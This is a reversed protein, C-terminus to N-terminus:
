YVDVYRSCLDAPELDEVLALEFRKTALYAELLEPSFWSGVVSDAEIASLAEGLTGPLAKVGYAAREEEGLSEPDQDLVPPPDLERKIGDLGALVLVALVLYPSATADAARYELNFHESKAPEPLPPLRLAAERNQKGVISYGASWNHPGLRLYSVPSPATFGCLAPLHALVGAAFSGSLGDLGGPQRDDHGAVKGDADRFSFHVHVGNGPQGVSVGPSFSARRGVNRAVEKVVERVIVARDAAAVGATAPCTLEFQGSGYEALFTEVQFGAQDAALMLQRPFPESSRMAELSFPPAAVKEQGAPQSLHFEHEFSAVLHTGTEAELADMARRLLARPCCDWPRGDLTTADCLFFHLPSSNPWLDVRTETSRDPSLRLDGLAGWPNPDAIPGLSTLAQNAPVWGVGSELRASLDSAPVARGRTVGSIDTYLFAVLDHDNATM